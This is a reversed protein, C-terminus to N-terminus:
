KQVKHINVYIACLQEHLLVKLLHSAGNSAVCVRLRLSFVHSRSPVDEASSIVKDNYRPPSTRLPGSALINTVDEWRPSTTGAEWRHSIRTSRGARPRLGATGAPRLSVSTARAPRSATCSSQCARSPQLKVSFKIFNLCSTVSERGVLNTHILM